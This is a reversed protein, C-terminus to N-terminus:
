RGAAPGTPPPPRVRGEWRGYNQGPNRAMGATNGSSDGTITLVGNEVSVADPTRRGNGAHGPGGYVSWADGLPRDFEDVRNPRGRGLRSAATTARRASSDPYGVPACRAM